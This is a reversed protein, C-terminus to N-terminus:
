LTCESKVGYAESHEAQRMPDKGKQIQIHLLCGSVGCVTAKFEVGFPEPKRASFSLHPLGGTATTTPHWASM